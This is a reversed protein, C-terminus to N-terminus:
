RHDDEAAKSDEKWSVRLPTQTGESTRAQIRVFASTKEKFCGGFTCKPERLRAAKKPQPAAGRKKRRAARWMIMTGVKVPDSCEESSPYIQGATYGGLARLGALM